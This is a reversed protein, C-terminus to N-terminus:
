REELRGWAGEDAWLTGPLPRSPLLISNPAGGGFHRLFQGGDTQASKLALPAHVKPRLQLYRWTHASYLPWCAAFSHGDIVLGQNATEDM